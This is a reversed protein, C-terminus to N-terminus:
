LVHICMKASARARVMTRNEAPSIVVEYLKIGLPGHYGVSFRFAISVWFLPASKLFSTPWSM